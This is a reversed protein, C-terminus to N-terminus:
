AGARRIMIYAGNAGPVAGRVLLLNKEGDIRVVTLNKTAHTGSRESANQQVVSEWILDTKIRGGFIEENLELAGVKENQGNVIDLKM